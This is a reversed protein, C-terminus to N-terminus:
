GLHISALRFETSCFAHHISKDKHMGVKVIGTNQGVLLSIASEDSVM